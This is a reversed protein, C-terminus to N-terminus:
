VIDRSYTWVGGTLVYEKLGQVGSRTYLVRCTTGNGHEGALFIKSLWDTAIQLDTIGDANLSIAVSIAKINTDVYAKNVADSNYVPTAVNIITSDSVDISGGGGPVLVLNGNTANGFGTTYSITANNLTLWSIGVPGTLHGISTLGPASSVSAGLQTSSLVQTGGIYFAKNNAINFNESSTWANTSSVWTLTKDGDGGAKLSIGGGNATTNSPSGVKGIEVLLDEVALNTTNITTTSGEITLNGRIRADGDVDLAATPNDTFIGMYNSSGDIYLATPAVSLGTKTSIQISQGVKTSEIKFLSNNVNFRLEGGAGFIAPVQPAVFSVTGQASTDDIASMFNDAYKTVGNGDILAQARVATMNSIYASEDSVNFGAILSGTFGVIEASPTFPATSYIGMLTGGAFLKVITRSIQNTDIVDEVIFGSQGQTATYAPGALLTGAGDNFFLQRTDSNIWLGGRSFNLPISNSVVTNGTPVFNTGNYIKLTNVSTDYWLQGAIPQPPETINAFNELLHVFNDNLYVGYNAVDKGILTLDTASQDISGDIVDTLKTGSTLNITYSM